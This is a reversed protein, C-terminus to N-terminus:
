AVTKLAHEPLHQTQLIILLNSRAAPFFAQQHLLQLLHDSFEEQTTATILMIIRQNQQQVPVRLLFISPQSDSMKDQMLETIIVSLM